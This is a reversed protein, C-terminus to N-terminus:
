KNKLKVKRKMEREIKPMKITLIGNKIAAEVRSNDVEKQLIIERSFPGWYCEQLFYSTKEKKTEPKERKGKIELVDDEISIELDDVGVGAVASQVFLYNEDEFVDLTLKGESKFWNGKEKTEESKKEEKQNKNKKFFM